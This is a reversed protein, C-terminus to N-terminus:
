IEGACEPVHDQPAWAWLCIWTTCREFKGVYSGHLVVSLTTETVMIYSHSLAGEKIHTRLCLVENLGKIKDNPWHTMLATVRYWYHNGRAMGYVPSPLLLTASLLANGEGHRRPQVTVIVLGM